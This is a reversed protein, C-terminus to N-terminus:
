PSPTLRVRTIRISAYMKANILKIQQKIANFDSRHLQIKLKIKKIKSDIIAQMTERSVIVDNALILDNLNPFAQIFAPPLFLVQQSRFMNELNLQRILPYFGNHLQFSTFQMRNIIFTKLNPGLADLLFQLNVEDTSSFTAIFFLLKLFNQM